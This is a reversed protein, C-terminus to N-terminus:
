LKPFLKPEKPVKQECVLRVEHLAQIVQDYAARALAFLEQGSLQKSLVSVDQGSSNIYNDVPAFGTVSSFTLQEHNWDDRYSVLFKFLVNDSIDLLRKTEPMQMDRHIVSLKGSRFYVKDFAVNGVLSVIKALRDMIALSRAVANDIMMHFIWGAVTGGKMNESLDHFFVQEPRAVYERLLLKVQTPMEKSLPPLGTEVDTDDSIVEESIQPYKRLLFLAQGIHWRLQTILDDVELALFRIESYQQEHPSYALAQALKVLDEQPYPCNVDLITQEEDLNDTPQNIM